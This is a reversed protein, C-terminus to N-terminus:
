YDTDTTITHSPTKKWPCLLLVYARRFDKALAAYIIVNVSSNTLLAVNSIRELINLNDESIGGYETLQVISFVYYPSFLVFYTVLIAGVVKLGKNSPGKSRAHEQQSEVTHIRRSQKYSDRCIKGYIIVIIIFGVVSGSLFGYCIAAQVHSLSGYKTSTDDNLYWLLPVFIAPSMVWLTVLIMAIVKQTVLVNHRLPWTVAIFRDVAIYFIHQFCIFFQGVIILYPTTLKGNSGSTVGASDGDIGVHVAFIIGFLLDSVSLSAILAHRKTQLFKCKGIAILTLLNGFVILVTIVAIAVLESIYLSPRM